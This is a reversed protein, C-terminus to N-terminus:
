QQFFNPRKIKISRLYIDKLLHGKIELSEIKYGSESLIKNANRVIFSEWFSAKLCYM